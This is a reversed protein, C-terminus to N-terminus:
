PRVQKEVEKKAPPFVEAHEAPMKADKVSAKGSFRVNIPRIGNKPKPANMDYIIKDARIVKNDRYAKPQEDKGTLYVLKEKDDFDLRDGVLLADPLFIRVNGTAFGMKFEGKQNQEAEAYACRMRFETGLIQVKGRLKVGTAKEKSTINMEDAQVDEIRNQKKAPAEPKPKEEPATEQAVSVQPHLCLATLLMLYRV